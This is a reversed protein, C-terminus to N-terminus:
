PSGIDAPDVVIIDVADPNTTSLLITWDVSGQGDVARGSRYAKSVDDSVVPGLSVGNARIDLVDVTEYGYLLNTLVIASSAPCRVEVNLQRPKESNRQRPFYNMGDAIPTGNGLSVVRHVRAM